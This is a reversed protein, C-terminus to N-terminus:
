TACAPNQPHVFPMIAALATACVLLERRTTGAGESASTQEERESENGSAAVAAATFDARRGSLVFLAEQSVSQDKGREHAESIRLARCSITFSRSKHEGSSGTSVPQITRTAAPAAAQFAKSAM